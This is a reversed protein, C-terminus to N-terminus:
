GGPLGQAFTLFQSQGRQCFIPMLQSSLLALFPQDQGFVKGLDAFFLLPDEV